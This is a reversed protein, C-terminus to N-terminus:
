IKHGGKFVGKRSSAGWLIQHLNQAGWFAFFHM